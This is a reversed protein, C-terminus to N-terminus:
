ARNPRMLMTDRNLDVISADHVELSSLPMPAGPGGMNGEDYGSQSQEDDGAM